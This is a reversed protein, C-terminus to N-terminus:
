SKCFHQTGNDQYVFIHPIEKHLVCETLYNNFWSHAEYFHLGRVAKGVFHGVVVKTMQWYVM